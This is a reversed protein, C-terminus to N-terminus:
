AQFEGFARNGHIVTTDDQGLDLAARQCPDFRISGLFDYGFSAASRVARCDPRVAFDIYTIVTAKFPHFGAPQGHRVADGVAIGVAIDLPDIHVGARRFRNIGLTVAM